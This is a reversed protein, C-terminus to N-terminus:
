ITSAGKEKRKEVNFYENFIIELIAAMTKSAYLISREIEVAKGGGM